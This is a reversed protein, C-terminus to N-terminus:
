VGDVPPWDCVFLVGTQIQRVIREEVTSALQRGLQMMEPSVPTASFSVDEAGSWGSLTASPLLDLDPARITKKLKPSSKMFKVSTKRFPFVKSGVVCAHYSISFLFWCTPLFFFFCCCCCFSVIMCVCLKCGPTNEEEVANEEGTSTTAAERGHPEVSVDFDGPVVESLDPPVASSVDVGPVVSSETTPSAPLLTTLADNISQEPVLVSTM